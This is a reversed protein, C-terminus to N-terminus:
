KEESEVVVVPTDDDNGEGRKLTKAADAISKAASASKKNMNIALVGKLFFNILNPVM